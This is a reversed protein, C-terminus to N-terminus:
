TETNAIGSVTIPRRFGLRTLAREAVVYFAPVVVLSLATSVVLGGLVGIAMPARLESGAGLSLAPPLAAMATATSTMLIPRLRVPGARLMAARADPESERVQNAFDVLIISNKKVIGMLLLLGIMSFINLSRGSIGLALVAGVLSLPLITLVTWPHLFSNFQSALVMYAVLVGLLLAFVLSGMSERYAVSAGGLSARYGLPLDRGLEEVQALAQQQSAGPAVNAFVTIARERNNRTIAQLAPRETWSVVTSLPVLTGAATRVRLRAFDEPRSRQEALLRLRVDVRRGGTSYKGARVGGVLANITEAVHEVPIGLDACRARDPTVQLEPMGLQYDTDLDVVLGSQGLRRALDQSVQVLREWDPGLVSFEVPFGRKATFGQQSQDQVVARLGPYSNLERRVEAGFESQSVERAGPPVLTVFM